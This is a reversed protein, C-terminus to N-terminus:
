SEPLIRPIPIPMPWGQLLSHCPLFRISPLELQTLVKVYKVKTNCVVLHKDGSMRLYVLHEKNPHVDLVHYLGNGGVDLANAIAPQVVISDNLDSVLEWELALENISELQNLDLKWIPFRVKETQTSNEHSLCLGLFHNTAILKGCSELLKEGTIPPLPLPIATLTGNFTSTVQFPNFAGFYSTQRFCVVSKCVVGTFSISHYWKFCPQNDIRLDINKWERTESIYIVLQYNKFPDDNIIREDTIARLVVVRFCSGKRCALGAWVPEKDTQSSPLTIWQKTLLNVVFFQGVKTSRNVNFCLVLDRFTSCITYPKPLFDLSLTPSRFVSECYPKAVIATLQHNLDILLSTWPQDDEDTESHISQCQPIFSPDSILACWRKSVTKCRLATSYNPLGCLIELLIEDNLDDISNNKKTKKIALSKFREDNKM